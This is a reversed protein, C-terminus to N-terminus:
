KDGLLISRVKKEVEQGPSKTEWKLLDMHTANPITLNVAYALPVSDADVVGDNPIAGTHLFPFHRNVWFKRFLFPQWAIGLIGTSKLGRITTWKIATEFAKSRKNLHKLFSSTPIMQMFQSNLIQWDESSIGGSPLEFLLNLGTLFIDAPINLARQALRTGHNPTGLLFVNKILGNEAWIENDNNAKLLYKLMARTVLGGMSHAYIDLSVEAQYNQLKAIIQELFFHTLTQDTRENFIPTKLDYPQRFDLGFDSNYISINAVEDYIQDYPARKLTTEIEQMYKKKGAFGHVLIAIHKRLTGTM